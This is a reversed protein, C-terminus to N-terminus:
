YGRRRSEEEEFRRKEYEEKDKREKELKEQKWNEYKLNEDERERLFENKEHELEHEHNQEDEHEHERLRPPEDREGSDFIGEDGFLGEDEGENLPNEAVKSAMDDENPNYGDHIDDSDLNDKGQLEGLASDNDPSWDKTAERSKIGTRKMKARCIKTM